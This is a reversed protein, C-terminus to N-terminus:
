PWSAARRRKSKAPYTLASSKIPELIVGADRWISSSAAKIADLPRNRDSKKRGGPMCALPSSRAIPLIELRAAGAIVHALRDGAEIRPDVGFTPFLARAAIGEDAEKALAGGRPRPRKRHNIRLARHVRRRNAGDSCREVQVNRPEVRERVDDPAQLAVAGPGIQEHAHGRIPQFGDAARQFTAAIGQGRNLGRGLAALLDARQQGGEPSGHRLAVVHDSM